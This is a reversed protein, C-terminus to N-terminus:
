TIIIQLLKDFTVSHCLTVSLTIISLFFSFLTQIQSNYLALLVFIKKQLFSVCVSMLNPPM